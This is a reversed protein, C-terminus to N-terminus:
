ISGIALSNHMKKYDAVLNAARQLVDPRVLGRNALELFHREHRVPSQPFLERQKSAFPTLRFSHCVLKIGENKLFDRITSALGLDQSKHLSIHPNFGFKEISYDPKWWIEKLATSRVKLYVVNEGPNQFLGAGHILIPERLLIRECRDLDAGPVEGRYPGRVTIHIGASERGGGFERRLGTLLANIEPDLFELFVFRPAGNKEINV